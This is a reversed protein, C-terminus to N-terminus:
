GSVSPSASISASPSSSVSASTSPSSSPSSSISASTSPTSSPSASISASTSLSASPSSSVSASPSSSVSASTSASAAALDLDQRYTPRVDKSFGEVFGGIHGAAESLIRIAHGMECPLAIIFRHYYHPNYDNMDIRHTIENENDDILVFYKATTGPTYNINIAKIYHMTNATGSKIVEKGTADASYFPVIWPRGGPSASTFNREITTIAM